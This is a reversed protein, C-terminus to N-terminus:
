GRTVQTSSFWANSKDSLYLMYGRPTDVFYMFLEDGFSDENIIVKELVPISVMFSIGETNRSNNIPVTQEFSQNEVMLTEGDLVRAKGEASVSGMRKIVDLLYQRDVVIGKEKSRKEVYQSYKIKIRQYKIFAETNESRICLYKDNKSMVLSDQGTCLKKLFGASSYSLSFGKFADTLKNVFFTSMHSSMVFVYDEAFNIKSGVSSSDSSLLPYLESLYVLLEESMISEEDDPFAMSIEKAVNNLIPANELDFKSSQAFRSDEGEKPLEEVSFRVRVGNDEIVIKDVYTKWLNSFSSTIKNLESAKVQFSWGDEGVECVADKLTTRSFMFANYGVMNVSDDKAVFIANKMKDDVSKDSLVLNCLNLASCLESYSVEIRM